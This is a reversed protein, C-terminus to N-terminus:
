KKRFAVAFITIGAVLMLGSLVQGMTLGWSTLFGIQPDPARFQECIIRFTAYLIAMIGSLAGPRDRLKTFKVLCFMIIFLVAGELAAEYLPSPHRPLETTQGAFVIGWPKDTVRGMVEMNIFNAIRGFFLGIPAVVAMLDLLRFATVCMGAGARPTDKQKIGRAFLFVATIVGLLGGHFSMGGQWVALIELPHALFFPLNYFLVYGLRGGIIVGLIIATFLDDFQKKSLNIESNKDSMLRRLLWFGVIFAAVYALAYWRVDLGFVSFAVPSIPNIILAM